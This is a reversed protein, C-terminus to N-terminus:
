LPDAEIGTREILEDLRSKDSVFELGLQQSANVIVTLCEIQGRAYNLEDFIKIGKQAYEEAKEFNEMKVHTKAINVLCIGRFNEDKSRRTEFLLQNFIELAEEYKGQARYLRALDSKPPSIPKGSWKFLYLRHLALQEFELYKENHFLWEKKIRGYIGELEELQDKTYNQLVMKSQIREFDIVDEPYMRWMLWIKQLELKLHWYQYKQDLELVINDIIDISQQYGLHISELVYNYMIKFYTDDKEESKYLQFSKEAHFFLEESTLDPSKKILSKAFHAFALNITSQSDINANYINDLYKNALRYNGSRNLDRCYGIKQIITLREYEGDTLFFTSLKNSQGDANENFKNLKNILDITNKKRNLITYGTIMTPVMAPFILFILINENSKIGAIDNAEAFQYAEYIGLYSTFFIGPLWFVMTVLLWRSNEQM